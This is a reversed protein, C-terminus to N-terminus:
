FGRKISQATSAPAYMEPKPTTKKQGGGLVLEIQETAETCGCGQFGNAEIKTTGAPSINIVINKEM